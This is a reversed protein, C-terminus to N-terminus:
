PSLHYKTKRRAQFKTQTRFCFSHKNHTMSVLNKLILDDWPKQIIQITKILILISINEILTVSDKLHKRKPPNLPVLWMLQIPLQKLWSCELHNVFHGFFWLNFFIIWFISLHLSLYLQSWWRFVDLSSGVWFTIMKQLKSYIRWTSCLQVWIAARDCFNSSM